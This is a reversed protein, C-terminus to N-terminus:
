RYEQISSQVMEKILENFTIKPTWGLVAKAKDPRGLLFDVEAPRVFKPNVVVYDQWDKVGMQAFASSCLEAITHTEGTAIVFDDGTPQQLMLYAAQMYDRSHGWDRKADLNGLELKPFENELLGKGPILAFANPHTENTLVEAKTSLGNEWAVFRGIYDTVKRTVFEKGRRPSEHNFLIGCSVHLNYARRYLQCMQHAAVKAVAYPSQPAFPTDENQFKVEYAESPIEWGAPYLDAELSYNKGFMESTSAQYLRTQPSTQRIAELINVVATANSDFTAVPSSFSVQVHSQAALNYFEDPKVASIISYVSSPDTIDCIEVRFNERNMLHEINVYNPNASRRRLGVVTYDKDLLLEALYSADQGMIGTIIATKM